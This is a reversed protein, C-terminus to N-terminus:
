LYSGSRALVFLVGGFLFPTFAVADGRQRVRTALVAAAVLGGLVFSFMLMPVVGRVGVVIGCVIGYKVDGLGLAGRGALAVGVLLGFALVGGLLAEGAHLRYVTLSAVVTFTILPYVYRNPAHLTRVDCVAIAGLPVLYILTALTGPV